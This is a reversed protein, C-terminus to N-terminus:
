GGSSRWSLITERFPQASPGSLSSGGERRPSSRQAATPWEADEGEAIGSYHGDWVDCSRPANCDSCPTSRQGVGVPAGVGWITALDFSWFSKPPQTAAQYPGAASPWRGM